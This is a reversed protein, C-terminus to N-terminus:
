IQLPVNGDAAHWPAVEHANESGSASAMGAGGATVSRAMGGSTGMSGRSVLLRKVAQEDERFDRAYRVRVPFRDRGEVTPTIVKGGLAVEITDQIDGVRVGYRAAKERDIKIELYGKGMFPEAIVDMAGPIPKIAQEIQKCVDNITDLDPGFVKVGVQTRVGTSLMDVRNQIPQTWINSWGPMQVVQDLEQLLDGKPGGKRQWFLVKKAFPKELEERLS